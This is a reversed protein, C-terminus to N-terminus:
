NVLHFIREWRTNLAFHSIYYILIKFFPIVYPSEFKPAKPDLKWSFYVIMAKGKILKRDLFGWERSDQSNDRNDGLVFLHGPPVQIPGLNDRNSYEKPLIDKNIYKVESPDSEEIGDIIVKKNRIEVTQGEKAIIRKIFDKDPNLPYKFVIVDGTQPENFHYIFKNVLIFDGQWLTDEMSATPIKYAQIVFTRLVFAIVLAVILTEIYARYTPAKKKKMVNIIIPYIYSSTLDNIKM